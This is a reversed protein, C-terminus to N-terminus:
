IERQDVQSFYQYLPRTNLELLEQTTVFQYGEKQLHDIITALADATASQIDHMLLIGGATSTQKVVKIVSNKNKSQWDLSDINWQIIPKGIVEAVSQNVAGYPPRFTRPLVGTAEFIAKDTQQVEKEIAKKSLNTLQPHSYSHSALEHGEDHIQKVLDPSKKANEGLMFFTAKVDKDKLTQLVKPTTNAMPGDDFTLAIYKGDPDLLTKEEALFKPDVLENQIFPQIEEYPITMETVGTKNEPLEIKLADATYTIKTEWNIRPLNLVADIVKEPEKSEDLIRQQIVQHIGLLNANEVILDQSTVSKGTKQNMYVPKGNVAKLKKFADDKPNWQYTDITIHYSTLQETYNKFNPRGIFVTAQKQNTKQSAKNMLKAVEKEYNEIPIEEANTPLYTVKTLNEEEIVEETTALGTQELRKQNQKLLEITEDAIQEKLQQQDVFYLVGLGIGIFIGVCIFFIISNSYVKKSHEKQKQIRQESRKTIVKKDTM